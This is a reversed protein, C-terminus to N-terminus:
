STLLEPGAQGVRHFVMEVFFVFIPWAHHHESTIGAVRSASARSDRSSPLHLNCYASIVGNCELRYDLVKPPWPPCIVLDLPGSWGPWCPSVKDRCFNCVILQAHHCPGTTGAVPSASAPSDSSGLLWLNCHTPIVGSCELRTVSCSEMPRHRKWITCTKFSFGYGMASTSCNSRSSSNGLVRELTKGFTIEITKRVVEVTELHDNFNTYPLHEYGTTSKDSTANSSGYKCHLSCYHLLFNPPRTCHYMGTIEASQSASTLPNSPCLDELDAQAVHHSIVEVFYVFILWIHHHVGTTGAVPSASTPPYSSGLLHLNCHALIADSCELRPLLTLGQSALAPSDSSGLLHLGCYALIMGSCELKPPQPLPIAQVRSASILDSCELRTVSHSETDIIGASQSALSSSDSLALQELGPQAVYHSRMQSASTSPDNSGPLNLSFHATNTGNCKLRPSLAQGQRLFYFTKNIKQKQQRLKPTMDLFMM